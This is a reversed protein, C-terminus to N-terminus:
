ARSARLATEATSCEHTVLAHIDAIDKPRRLEWKYALVDHLTAFRLGHLVEARDILQDTDWNVSIWRQSFQIRGGWFHVMPSGSITGVAPEGFQALRRWTAGRAVVDLDRISQRLGHALLPGSGFVVLDDCNLELESCIQILRYVLPHQSVDVANSAQYVTM